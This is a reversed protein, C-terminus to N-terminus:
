KAKKITHIFADIQCALGGDGCREAYAAIRALKGTLKDDIMGAAGATPPENIRAADFAQDGVADGLYAFARAFHFLDMLDM